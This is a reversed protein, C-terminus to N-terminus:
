FAADALEERSPSVLRYTCPVFRLRKRNAPRDKEAKNPSEMAYGGLRVGILSSLKTAFKQRTLQQGGEIAARVKQNDYADKSTKEDAKFQEKWTEFVDLTHLREADNAKATEVREVSDCCNLTILTDRVWEAWQSYSGLALGRKLQDSNQRGWRWVTLIAVLLQPRAEAIDTLFDGPFSRLEPNEMKADLEVEVVRRVLDEGIRLGNGNLAIFARTNIERNESSGLPRLRAPSETLATCLAASRLFVNNLNDLSIIPDPQLLAAVIGKEMESGRGVSNVHASTGTATISVARISLGKGAGAGSFKPSTLVLAPALTLSRRCVSTMLMTLFASEDRAAGKTLDVVQMATPQDGVTVQETTMVADAFPLTQFARRLHVLASEADAKTPRDPVVIDPL